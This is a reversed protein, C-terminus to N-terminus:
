AKLDKDVVIKTFHKCVFNVGKDIDIFRLESLFYVFYLMPMYGFRLKIKFRIKKDDAM